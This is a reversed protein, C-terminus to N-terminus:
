QTGPSIVPIFDMARLLDLKRAARVLYATRRDKVSEPDANRTAAPLAEIQTVLEDRAAILAARYRLTARRSHAVLQAKFGNPAIASVYHRLMDRAKASILEEAEMVDGRSGYRRKIQEM